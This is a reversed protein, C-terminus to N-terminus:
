SWESESEDLWAGTLCGYWFGCVPMWVWREAQCCLIVIYCGGNGGTRWGVWCFRDDFFALVWMM